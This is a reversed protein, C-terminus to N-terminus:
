FRRNESIYHAMFVDDGLMDGVMSQVPGPVQYWVVCSVVRGCVRGCVHVSLCSHTVLLIICRSPPQTLFRLTTHVALSEIFVLVFVVKSYNM